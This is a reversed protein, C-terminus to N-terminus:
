DHIIYILEWLESTTRVKSLVMHTQVTAWVDFGTYKYEM